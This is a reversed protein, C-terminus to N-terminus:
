LSSFRQLYGKWSPEDLVLSEFNGQTYDRIVSEWFAKAYDLGPLQRVEWQTKYSDFLKIAAWRGVGFKRYAPMVFFEAIDRTAKDENIMSSLNIVAFGVPLEGAYIMYANYGFPSWYQMIKNQDYLGDLNLEEKTICSFEFEYLQQLHVFPAKKIDDVRDLRLSQMDLRM